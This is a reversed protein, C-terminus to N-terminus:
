GTTVGPRGFARYSRVVLVTRIVCWVLAFGSSIVVLWAIGPAFVFIARLGIEFAAPLAILLTYALALNSLVVVGHWAWLLWWRQPRKEAVRRWRRVRRYFLLALIIQLFPLVKLTTDIVRISMPRAPPPSIPRGRSLDLVDRALQRMEGTADPGNVNMLVVVGWRDEPSM